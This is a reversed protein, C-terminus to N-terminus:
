NLLTVLRDGKDRVSNNRTTASASSVDVRKHLKYITPVPPPTCQATHRVLDRLHKVPILLLVLRTVSPRSGLQVVGDNLKDSRRLIHNAGRLWDEVAEEDVDAM